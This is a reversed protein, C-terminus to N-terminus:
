QLMARLGRAQELAAAVAARASAHWEDILAQRRAADRQIWAMYEGVMELTARTCADIEDQRGAAMAEAAQREGAEAAQHFGHLAAREEPPLEFRERRGAEGTSSRILDRIGPVAAAAPPTAELEALIALADRLAGKVQVGLAISTQMVSAAEAERAEADLRAMVQHPTLVEPRALAEQRFAEFREVIGRRRVRQEERGREMRDLGDLAEELCAVLGDVDALTTNVEM